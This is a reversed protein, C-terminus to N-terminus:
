QICVFRREQKQPLKWTLEYNGRNKGCCNMAFACPSWSPSSSAQAPFRCLPSVNVVADVGLGCLHSVCILMESSLLFWSRMECEDEMMHSYMSAHSAEQTEKLQLQEQLEACQLQLAEKQAEAHKLVEQLEALAAKDGFPDDSYGDAPM